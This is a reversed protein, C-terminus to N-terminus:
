ASITLDTAGYNAAHTILAIDNRSIIGDANLDAPLNTEAASVGYNEQLLVWSIDLASVVGDGNVDGKALLRYLKEAQKLAATMEFTQNACIGEIIVRLGTSGPKYFCLHVESATAVVPIFLKSQAVLPEDTNLLSCPSSEATFVQAGELSKVKSLDARLVCIDRASNIIIDEGHIQLNPTEEDTPTTRPSLRIVTEDPKLVIAKLYLITGNQLAGTASSWDVDFCNEQEGITDSISNEGTDAASVSDIQLCASDYEFHLACSQVPVDSTMSIPIEVTEGPQASIDSSECYFDATPVEPESPATPEIMEDTDENQAPTGSQAANSQAKEEEIQDICAQVCEAYAVVGHKNPHISSSSIIQSHDLDDARVFKIGHIYELLTGTYIEHGEFAEEVSVFHIKFDDTYLSNIIGKMETNLQTIARNISASESASFILYGDKPLIKPYGAIIIDAQSGAANHVDKYAQIIRNKISNSGNYFEDWLRGLYDDMGNINIFSCNMAAYVFVDAFHADNGGMTMTVYDTTGPKISEFVKLQNDLALSGYEPTGDPNPYREYSKNQTGKLSGTVAGSSAVFYWNNKSFSDYSKTKNSYSAKHQSMILRKGNSGTLQLKGPWSIRSRHALWDPQEYRDERGSFYYPEVGEGSSYSDGLSVMIPEKGIESEAAPLAFAPAATACMLLVALMLALLKFIHIISNHQQMKM